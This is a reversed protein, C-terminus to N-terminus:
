PTVVADRPSSTSKSAGEPVNTQNKHIGFGLSHKCCWYHWFEPCGCQYKVPDSSKSIKQLKLLMYGAGCIRLADELGLKDGGVDKLASPGNKVVDIFSKLTAHAERKRKATPQTM